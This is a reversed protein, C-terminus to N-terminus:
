AMAQIVGVAFRDKPRNFKFVKEGAAESEQQKWHFLEEVSPHKIVSVRQDYDLFWQIVDPISDYDVAGNQDRALTPGEEPTSPATTSDATDQNVKNNRSRFGRSS